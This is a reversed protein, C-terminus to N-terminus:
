SKIEPTQADHPVKEPRALFKAGVLSNGFSYHKDMTLPAICLAVNSVDLGYADAVICVIDEESFALPLSLGDRTEVNKVTVAFIEPVGNVLFNTFAFDDPAVPSLVLGGNEVHAALIKKICDSDCDIKSSDGMPRFGDNDTILIANEMILGM